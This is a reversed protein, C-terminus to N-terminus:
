QSKIWEKLLSVGKVIQYIHELGGGTKFSDTVLAVKV